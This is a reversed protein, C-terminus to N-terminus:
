LVPSLDRLYEIILLRLYNLTEAYHKMQPYDFEPTFYWEIFEPIEFIKLKNLENLIEQAKASSNNNIIQFSYGRIDDTLVEITGLISFEQTEEWIAIRERELKTNQYDKLLQNLIKEIYALATTINLDKKSVDLNQMM